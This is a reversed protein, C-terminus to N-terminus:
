ILSKADLLIIRALLNRPVAAWGTTVRQWAARPVAGLALPARMTPTGSALVQAWLTDRRASRGEVRRSIIRPCGPDPREVKVSGRGRTGRVGYRRDAQPSSRLLAKRVM